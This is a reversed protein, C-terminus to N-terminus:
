GTMEVALLEATTPLRFSLSYGSHELRLLQPLEAEPMRIDDARFSVEVAEGCHPCNAAGSVEPGFAQERLNLLRGDRCGLALRELKEGPREMGGTRLVGIARELPRRNVGAEWIALLKESSLM